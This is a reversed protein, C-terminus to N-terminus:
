TGSVFLLAVVALIGLVSMVTSIIGLVFGAQAQGGNTARGAAAKRRGNLGLIIAPVGLLLGGFFLSVIGLIMSWLGTGNDPSAFLDKSTQQDYQANPMNYSM